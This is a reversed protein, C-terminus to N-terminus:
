LEYGWIEIWVDMTGSGSAFIQYYIDGDSTCPCIGSASRLADNPDYSIRCGVIYSSSVNNPSVAAWYDGGSSGSDRCHVTILAARIGAPVGYQASLDILTKGVTSFSDGNFSTSILPSGQTGPWAADYPLVWQHSDLSDILDIYSSENPVDGDNFYSKLTTKDVVPM